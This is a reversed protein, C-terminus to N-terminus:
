DIGTYFFNPRAKQQTLVSYLKLLVFYEKWDANDYSEFNLRAHNYM